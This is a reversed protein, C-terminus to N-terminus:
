PATGLAAVAVRRGSPVRGAKRWQSVVSRGVGLAKAVAADSGLRAKAADLLAIDSEAAPMSDLVKRIKALANAAHCSCPLYLPIPPGNM